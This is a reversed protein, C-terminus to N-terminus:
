GIDSAGSSTSRASRAANQHTPAWRDKLKLFHKEFLNWSIAALGISAAIEFATFGFVALTRSHVLAAVRDIKYVSAFLPDCLYSLLYIAYSYKGVTTLAPHALWRPAGGPQVVALVVGGFALALASLGAVQVVPDRAPLGGAVVVVALTAAGGLALLGRAVAPAREPRVRVLVALLAGVALTDLRCPTFTYVAEPLVGGHLLAARLIPSAVVIGLAIAVLARRSALLVVTPWVLYFQEEICLSWLHNLQLWGGRWAQRGHVFEEINQAYAWLWGQKALIADVEPTVPLVHPAIVLAAVLVAYYLPFIRLTRRIYFNRFYRPSNKADLLIGTILFGSLVFFLDVGVWGARAVRDVVVSSQADLSHYVIVAVVAFARLGDLAVVHGRATPRPAPANM